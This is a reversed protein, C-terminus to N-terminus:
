DLFMVVVFVLAVVFLKGCDSCCFAPVGIWVLVGLLVRAVIFLGVQSLDFADVSVWDSFRLVVRCLVMFWFVWITDILGAFLASLFGCCLVSWRSYFGLWWCSLLCCCIGGIGFVYLDPSM